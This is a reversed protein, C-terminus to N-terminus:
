KSKLSNFKSYIQVLALIRLIVDLFINHYFPSSPISTLLHNLTHLPQSGGQVSSRDFSLELYLKGRIRGEVGDSM